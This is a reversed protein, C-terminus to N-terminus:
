LSNYLKVYEEFKDNMDYRKSRLICADESYPKDECVRRLEREFADIDDCETVSGCTKDIIEPSGGTNFTVVPTGCALSEINVTPFNDERTPNAFVDAASYIEALEKQDSTRKIGIINEPLTRSQEDSIGVLVIRFKDDLRKALEAFVDFGKRKTWPAAVGLIIYKGELHHNKRFDSETPKFVSLDIGNNIVKVDYDKLFSQKVLDALWQSPTVIVMDKVETFWKKKLGYMTKTRDVLSKPYEKYQRCSCCGDKWKDCKAMTFYPCQGTFAWCDHFTWVIKINHRKIYKFLLPLNVYSNHLNHLHIIDPEIYSINNLFRLTSITSFCGNFGTLKFLILHINRSIRNGIIISKCVIRKKNARSQPFATYASHSQKQAVDAINVMINGTSGYNCSNIQLIKMM